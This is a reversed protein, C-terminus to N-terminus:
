YVLVLGLNGTIIAENSGLLGEGADQPLLVNGGVQLVLNENLFLRYNLATTVEHAVVRSLRPEGAPVPLSATDMFRLNNYDVQFFLKATLVADLGLNLLLAGPNVFNSVGQTRRSPLFSNARTFFAGNGIIFSNAGGFLNINDNISDFGTARDDLPDGDGSAVFAAARYKFYNAPYAFQAGLFYAGVDTKRGAIPNAEETGLAYYFAPDLEIRGWHGATAVGLYNVGIANGPVSHDSNYHYSFLVLLGPSLLDEWVWNAVFIRQEQAEGTVGGGKSKVRQDFYALAWRYRNQSLEGFAHAALNIDKFIFGNFDSNFPQVGGRFSTFDYTTGVDFLKVEGFAELLALDDVDKNGRNAVKQGSAKLSWDKPQFVTAGHFLELALVAKNKVDTKVGESSSPLVNSTGVATLVPFLHHGLIPLDGKLRNQNYPDLLPHDPVQVGYADLLRWRSARSLNVNPVEWRRPAEPRAATSEPPAPADKRQANADPSSVLLLGLALCIPAGTKAFPM